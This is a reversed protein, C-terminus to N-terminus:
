EAMNERLFRFLERYAKPPAGRDQERHVNRVLTRLHGVDIGPCADVLETVAGDGEELLRTRWRELRHLAGADEARQQDLAALARAVPEPDLKRMLKGVYQRQRKLAGRSNIRRLEEVARVLDAPLALKEIEAPALGALREGLEQLALAERKRQSKSKGETEDEPLSDVTDPDHVKIDKGPL